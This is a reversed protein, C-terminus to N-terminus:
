IHGFHGKDASVYNNELFDFEVLEKIFLDTITSEGVWEHVENINM